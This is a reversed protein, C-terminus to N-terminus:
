GNSAAFAARAREALAVFEDHKPLKNRAFMAVQLAPGYTGPVKHKPERVPQVVFHIHCPVGKAHSWLCVYV